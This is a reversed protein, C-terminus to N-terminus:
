EDLWVQPGGGGYASVHLTHVGQALYDGLVGDLVASGAPPLQASRSGLSVMMMSTGANVVELRQRALAHLCRPVAVDAHLVVTIVPGSPRHCIGAAPTAPESPDVPDASGAGLEVAGVMTARTEPGVLGDVTIGQASQFARTIDESRPGFVGDVALLSRHDAHAVLWRNLQEQWAGVAPGVDGRALLPHNVSPDPEAARWARANIYAARTVPGVIGDVPVGQSNQFSRTVVDTLSGFEGDIALRFETEPEDVALWANLLGQWESVAPGNDGLRVVPSTEAWSVPLPPESAVASSAPVVVLGIALFVGVFARSTNSM